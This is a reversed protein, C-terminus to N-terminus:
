LGALIDLVEQPVEVETSANIESLQDELDRITKENAKQLATFNATSAPVFYKTIYAGQNGKEDYKRADYDERSYVFADQHAALRALTNQQRRLNTLQSLIFRAESNANAKDIAANFLALANGVVTLDMLLQDLGYKPAKKAFEKFTTICGNENFTPEKVELSFDSQGINSVIEEYEKTLRARETFARSLKM